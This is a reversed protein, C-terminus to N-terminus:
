AHRTVYLVWRIAAVLPHQPFAHLWDPRTM